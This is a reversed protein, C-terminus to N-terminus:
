RREAALPGAAAERPTRWMKAFRLRVLWFLMAALVLLPPVYLIPSGQIMEPLNRQQGLFFSFAAILLATSMRWAHRALHQARTLRRRLIFNLDLGAALAAIAAFPFHIAAPLSDLKGDPQAMAVLGIALFSATCALAFALGALEFRGAEGSRRRATAWSTAVLYCCLLGITATGREPMSLAVVSGSGAMALLSAFFLTGARGHFPSGKRAGLAAYGSLLAIAGAAVHFAILPHM